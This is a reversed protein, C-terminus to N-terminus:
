PSQGFLNVELQRPLRGDAPVRAPRAERHRRQEGPRRHRSRRRGARRRRGGARDDRRRHHGDALPTLAGSTRQALAEADAREACAPSCRSGPTRWVCHARRASARRRAPSSSPGTDSSSAGAMSAEQSLASSSVAVDGTLRAPPSPSSRTPERRQHLDDGAGRLRGQPQAEAASRRVLPAERRRPAHVRAVVVDVDGPQRRGRLAHRRRVARREEDGLERITKLNNKYYRRSTSFVAFPKGALVSDHRPITCTPASRCARRSGGRRRASSSWTTTAAGVRRRSGSTARRGGCGARAAHRLDERDVLDDPAELVAERLARRHVRDRGRDRRLWAARLTDAM